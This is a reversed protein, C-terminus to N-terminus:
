ALHSCEMESNLINHSMYVLSVIVIRRRVIKINLDLLDEIFGGECLRNLFTFSIMKSM